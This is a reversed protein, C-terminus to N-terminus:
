KKIQSKRFELERQAFWLIKELDYLDTTGEKTGLRYAAKFINGVAFNMNKAEIIDQLETAGEPLKYYDSSWGTLTDKKAYEEVVYDDFQKRYAVRKWPSEEYGNTTDVSQMHNFRGGCYQCYVVKVYCDRQTISGCEECSYNVHGEYSM